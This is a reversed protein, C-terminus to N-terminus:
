KVIVKKGNVVYIGKTMLEKQVRRGDLTYIDKKATTETHPVQSIGTVFSDSLSYGMTTVYGKPLELIAHIPDYTSFFAGNDAGWYFGLDTKEEYDDYALKYYYYSNEDPQWTGTEHCPKLYNEGYYSEALGSTLTLPYMGSGNDTKVLVPTNQPVHDGEHYLYNIILQNDKVGTVVGCKMGEPVEFESALIQTGYGEATGISLNYINDGKLKNPAPMGMRGMEAGPTGYILIAKDTSILLGTVSSWAGLNVPMNNPAAKDGVVLHANGNLNGDYSDYDFSNGKATGLVKGEVWVQQQSFLDGFRTIEAPTLPDAETGSHTLFDERAWFTLQNTSASTTSYVQPYGIMWVRAGEKILDSFDLGDAKTMQRLTISAGDNEAEANQNNLGSKVEVFVRVRMSEYKSMNAVLDSLTVDTLPLEAGDTITLNDKNISTIESLGYHNDFTVESIGNIKQGTKLGFGSGYLVIAGSADQIYTYSNAVNTVIADKFTLFYSEGEKAADKLSAIDALVETKTYVAEAVSSLKGDKEAVAKLTTTETIQIPETYKTSSTTPEDGNTTYYINAGEEATLTVEFPATFTTSNVSFTPAAVSVEGAPTYTVVIKTARVQGENATFTVNSASGTWTGTYSVSSYSGNENQKLNMLAPGYQKGDKGKCTFVINTITGNAASITVNNGKYFRYTYENKNKDYGSFTGFSSNTGKELLITVGDKTLTNTSSKDTTADFTVTTQALACVTGVLCMFCMTLFVKLSYLHRM